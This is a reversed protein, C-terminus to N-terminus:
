IKLGLFVALGTVSDVVRHHRCNRDITMIIMMMMVMMMVMMMMMMVWAVHCLHTQKDKQEEGACGDARRPHSCMWVGDLLLVRVVRRSAALLRAGDLLADVFRQPSGRRPTAASSSRDDVQLVALRLDGRIFFAAALM